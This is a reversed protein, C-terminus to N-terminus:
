ILNNKNLCNWFKPCKAFIEYFGMKFHRDYHENGCYSSHLLNTARGKEGTNLHYKKTSQTYMVM